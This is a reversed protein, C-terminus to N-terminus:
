SLEESRLTTSSIDERFEEATVEGCLTMLAAPLHIDSLVQFEGEIERGFVLFRCGADAIQQIAADFSGQAGTYYKPDGVRCITDAGVLFTCGPFLEAKRRFTPADTLVIPKGEAQNKLQNLRTEIEQFDLPPKDVNTLSLEYAVPCGLKTEALQVIRHHGVHPPNFAGSFIARPQFVEPYCVFTRDGLLVNTWPPQAPCQHYKLTEGPIVLQDFQSDAGADDVGSCSKALALLIFQGALDEEEARTRKDKALLLSCVDTDCATQLAVHIRHAGKKPRNSALSATAAIGILKHPDAEPALDRARMWASMAMARATQQSCSQKATIGLWRSLSAHSYPVIAELVTNSAGPVQLLQSIAGSGGGTIAIVTQYDSDHIQHVLDNGVSAEAM